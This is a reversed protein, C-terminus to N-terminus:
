QASARQAEKSSVPVQVIEGYYEFREIPALSGTRWASQWVLEGNPLEGHTLWRRWSHWRLELNPRGKLADQLWHLQEENPVLVVQGATLYQDLQSRETIGVVPRMMMFNLIGSESWLHHQLNLHLWPKDDHPLPADLVDAVEHRALATLVHGIGIFFLASGLLAAVVQQRPRQLLVVAVWFGAAGAVCTITIASTLEGWWAPWPAFRWIVAVLAGSILLVLAAAGM